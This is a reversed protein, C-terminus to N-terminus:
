KGIDENWLEPHQRIFTSMMEICEADHLDIVEVGNARMFAPSKGWKGEGGPFNVSEGVIVKPVGFQIVAGTCLYCPMLTSYLVTDAYTKQRGAHTLCDIEAHAMPDGHQVRRNHGRGIIQGNRVLVSGIPLGGESLGKKAEDIAARLFEDMAQREQPSVTAASQAASAANQLKRQKQEFVEKRDVEVNDPAIFGLRVKDGRIDVVRVEVQRDVIVSQDRQRSLVLM